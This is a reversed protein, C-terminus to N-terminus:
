LWYDKKHFVIHTIANLIFLCQAMSLVPPYLMDSKCFPGLTKTFSMGICAAYLVHMGIFYWRTKDKLFKGEPTPLNRLMLTFCMFNVYNSVLIMIFFAFIFKQGFEFFILGIMICIDVFIMFSAGDFTGKKKIRLIIALTLLSAILAIKSCIFVMKLVNVWSGEIEANREIQWENAM